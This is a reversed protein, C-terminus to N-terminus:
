RANAARVERGCPCVAVPPIADTTAREERLPDYIRIPEPETMEAILTGPSEIEESLGFRQRLQAEEHASILLYPRYGREVLVDLARPWWEPALLDWRMTLRNAYYRISGSHLVTLIVANEPLTARVYEAASLFAVGGVRADLIAEERVRTVRLALLPIALLLGIAVVRQAGVLRTLLAAAGVVALVLM